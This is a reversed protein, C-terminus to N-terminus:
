LSDAILEYYRRYLQRYDYNQAFARAHQAIAALENPQSLLTAIQQPYTDLNDEIYCHQGSQVPYGRFAIATGLIVKGYAMAEIIKVSMGTGATLPALVLASQQYLATLLDANVKGLSLFTKQQEPEWCGGVVVVPYLCNGEICWQRIAKVAELNPLHQSGIFLCFPSNLPIGLCATLDVDSETQCHRNIAQCDIGIPICDSEIGYDAFFARDGEALTIVRDAQKLAHIEEGLALHYLPSDPPLQKALVDHASLLLKKGRDRCYKAILDAWFPYELIVVDAWDVIKALWAQFDSDFRYQYYIWPLWNHAIEVTSPRSAAILAQSRAWSRFADEYIPQVLDAPQDPRYSAYYVGDQWQPDLGNSSYVALECTTDRFFDILRGVRQSAGSKGELVDAWPYVIAVRQSRGLGIRVPLEDGIWDFMVRDMEAIAYQASSTPSFCHVPAQPAIETLKEQQRDTPTLLVSAQALYQCERDWEQRHRDRKEFLAYHLARFSRFEYLIPINPNIGIESLLDRQWISDIWIGQLVVQQFKSPLDEPIELHAAELSERLFTPRQQYYNTLYRERDRESLNSSLNGASHPKLIWTAIAPLDRLVAQLCDRWEEWSKPFPYPPYLVAYIRYGRSALYRWHELAVPSPSDTELLRDGEMVLLIAPRDSPPEPIELSPPPQLLTKILTDPSNRDRWAPAFNQAAETYADLNETLRLIAAAIESPHRYISARSEDVQEALWSGAPVVVLKGAALAETLVGSTRQYNEPDYPLVVIDASALLQYYRDPDLADELLKVKSEPYEALLLKAALTSSESGDPTYNSQITFKVKGPQLYDAWLEAVVAPLHHYGKEPRADGLYLLHIPSDPDRTLTPALKEQRFPIPIQSFRIPSLRDHKQILTETDTYFRIKDPYLGNQVCHNLCNALGMGGTNKVLPDDPDRRLLVHYIPLNARDSQELFGILEELQEIGLTHIFVQDEPAIALAPFVEALTETLRQPPTEPPPESTSIAKLKRGLPAIAFSAMGWIIKWLGISTAALPLALLKQRDAQWAEGLRQSSGTLKELFLQLRPETAYLTYFKATLRDRLFSIQSKPLQPTASVPSRVRQNFWDVEFASIWKMGAPELAKPFARNAIIIPEYGLRASAEAVSVSFEYHHGQLNHLSPDLIIFRHM